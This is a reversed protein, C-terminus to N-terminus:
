DGPENTTRMIALAREQVSVAEADQDQAFLVDGLQQLTSAVDVHENGQLKHRLALADRLLQEARQM